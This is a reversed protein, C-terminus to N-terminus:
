THSRQSPVQSPFVSSIRQFMASMEAESLTHNLSREADPAAWQQVESAVNRFQTFEQSNSRTEALYGTWAEYTEQLFAAEKEMVAKRMLLFSELFLTFLHIHTLDHEVSVSDGPEEEKNMSETAKVKCLVDRLASWISERTLEAPITDKVRAEPHLLECSRPFLLLLAMSVDAYSDM